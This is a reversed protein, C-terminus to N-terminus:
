GACLCFSLLRVNLLVKDLFQMTYCLFMLPVIHWDIKRRLADLSIKGPGETVAATDGRHKELYNWAEDVGAEPPASGNASTQSIEVDMDKELSSM